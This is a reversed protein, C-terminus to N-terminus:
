VSLHQEVELEGEALYGDITREVFAHGGGVGASNALYGLTATGDDTLVSDKAFPPLHGGIL